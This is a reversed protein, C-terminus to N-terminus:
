SQADEKELPPENDADSPVLRNGSECQHTSESPLVDPKILKLIRETEKQIFEEGKLCYSRLSEPRVVEKITINPNREVWIEIQERQNKNLKSKRRRQSPSFLREVRGFKLHKIWETLATRSIKCIRAVASISSEKGAIVAQLKKSVYANNRVKKLMEKALNVVKEDLLKSRLAM